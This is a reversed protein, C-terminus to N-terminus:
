GDRAESPPSTERLQQEAKELERKFGPQEGGVTELHGRLLEVRRELIARKVNTDM